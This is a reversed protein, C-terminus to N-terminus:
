GGCAMVRLKLRIVGEWRRARQDPIFVGAPLMVHQHFGGCAAPYAAAHRRAFV